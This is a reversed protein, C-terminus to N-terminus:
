KGPAGEGAPLDPCTKEYRDDKGVYQRWEALSLNRNARKCARRIWSDLSVDWLWVTQDWSASALMKGDPSFTVSVVHDSHGRLPEGLAQRTAVDWLRVTQDASASALV